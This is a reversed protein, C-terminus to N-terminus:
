RELDPLSMAFGPESRFLEAGGRLYEHMIETCLWSRDLSEAARGTMCRGGFLDVVFDGAETLFKIFFEALALPMGAGHLPLGLRGAEKRYRDGWPCRHPQSIVNRPIRGSTSNGFSGPRLRYAGDGYNTFRSEGGQKILAKQKDTHPILVRRNDSKVKHPNKAFWFIPEYAVNLQQRTISAWYTPAPPKTANHWIFRDMLSLGLRDEIAIVLRELYTSRSPSKVNFIDNSLNLVVSGDEALKDVVPAIADCIFDVIATSDVNGYKRSNRLPYPPSTFLLNVPADLAPLVDEAAGWVAIGLDTSFALMCYPRRIPHLDKKAEATLAWVGRSDSPREILGLQRLTQQCWRVRRHFLNRRKGGKGIAATRGAQEDSLRLRSQVDTYLEQTTLTHGPKDIFAQKVHEFLDPQVLSM